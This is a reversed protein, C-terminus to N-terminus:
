FWRNVFEYVKKFAEGITEISTAYSLRLHGEGSAGFESGPTTSIGKEVLLRESLEFSPVKLSSFDPFVYFAGKPMVCSVGPIKNLEDVIFRRRRDYEKIMEEVFDQPGKLAAVGAKQVFSAPCTTTSQQIRDMAEIIDKNAYAYGLRWGTMAYTKSFGNIVITREKMGELSAISRIELSDYVIRDYIEDSLVLLDHDRALDAIVRIEEITLVGGTPNNPSCVLIMRSNPTLREKLAEEDLSYTEGCPVEIPRAEAIEVCQFHTPWTPALVLVEDGPNLTALCACYIAHKAGPTVIIEKEPDAEVGRRKLDDSIAERLEMIGRSSTYHTFGRRMAEFAAEKIHEPTDFDPEGIDLHYIKRGGKEMRRAKEAMSMTGSPKIRKM